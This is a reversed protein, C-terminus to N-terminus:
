LPAGGQKSAIITHGPNNPDNRMIVLSGVSAGHQDGSSFDYIGGAAPFNRLGEIGKQIQEATASTGLSRLVTLVILPTDWAFAHTVTPQTVGDAALSNYFDDIPKKQPDSNPRNRNSYSLGACELEDPLIAKMQSLLQVSFNAAPANVPVNLGVDNFAHLTTGFSTGEAFDFIVQAGSAKVKAAQASMSVDNNNVAETDVLQMDKNEPLRMIEQMASLNNQGSADTPAIVALKRLGKMRYYAVEIRKFDIAKVSSAFVYGNPKPLMNPTLAYLVPGDAGVIAAMAQSPAAISAGLVVAPHTTLLQQFLQAAVAPSSQDDGIQFHLPRGKIGGTRNAFKEFAVLSEQADHGLNAAPGSLSLIVPIVYPAPQANVPLAGTISFAVALALLQCIRQRTTSM